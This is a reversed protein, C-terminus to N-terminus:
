LRLPWFFHTTIIESRTILVYNSLLIMHEQNLDRIVGYLLLRPYRHKLSKISKLGWVELQTWSKLFPDSHTISNNSYTKNGGLTYFNCSKLSLSQFLYLFELLIHIKIINICGILTIFFFFYRGDLSRGHNLHIENFSYRRNRPM